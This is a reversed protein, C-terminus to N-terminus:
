SGDSPVCGRGIDGSQMAALQGAGCSQPTPDDARSPLKGRVAAWHITAVFRKGTSSTGIFTASIRRGFNTERMPGGQGNADSSGFSRGGESDAITLPSNPKLGFASLSLANARVTMCARAPDQMECMPTGRVQLDAPGTDDIVRRTGLPHRLRVTVSDACKSTGGTDTTLQLHVAQSGERVRVTPKGNCSPALFSLARDDASVEVGHQGGFAIAVPKRHSMCGSALMVTLVVGVALKRPM